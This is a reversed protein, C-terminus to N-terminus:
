PILFRGGKFLPFGSVQWGGIKAAQRHMQAMGTQSPLAGASGRTLNNIPSSQLIETVMGWFATLVLRICGPTTVWEGNKFGLLCLHFEVHRKTQRKHNGCRSTRDRVRGFLIGSLFQKTFHDRLEVLGLRRRKGNLRHNLILQVSLAM